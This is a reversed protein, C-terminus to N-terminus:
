KVEGHFEKAISLDIRSSGPYLYQQSAVVQETIPDIWYHNTYTVSLKDIDVKETVAILNQTHNPLSVSELDGIIFTSKAEYNMHYGPMWSLTFQWQKPTSNRLVGLTLPDPQSSRLAVLNGGNVLNVTKVIRGSETVVMENSASIWKFVVPTKNEEVWGLVLLAQPNDGLRAYMSAYPINDVIEQSINTEDPGIITSYITANVNQSNESCGSLLILLALSSVKIVTKLM